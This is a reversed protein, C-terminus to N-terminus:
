RQFVQILYRGSTTTVPIQGSDGPVNNVTFRLSEGGVGTGDVPHDVGGAARRGM